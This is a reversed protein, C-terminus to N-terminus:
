SPNLSTERQEEPRRDLGFNVKWCCKTSGKLCGWLYTGTQVKGFLELSLSDFRAPQAASLRSPIPPVPLIPLALSVPQELRALVTPSARPALQQQQKLGGSDKPERVAAEQGRKEAV